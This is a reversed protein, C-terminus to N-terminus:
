GLPFPAALEEGEISPAVEQLFPQMEPQVTKLFAISQDPLAAIKLEMGTGGLWGYWTGLVAELDMPPQGLAATAVVIWLAGLRRM